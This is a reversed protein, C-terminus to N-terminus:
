MMLYFLFFLVITGIFSCMFTITFEFLRSKKYLKRYSGVLTYLALWGLPIFIIGLWFKNNVIIEGQDTITEKLVWKRIFFFFAWALSATVFDIVAYWTVSIQKGSKM